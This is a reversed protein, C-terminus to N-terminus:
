DSAFSLGSREKLAEDCARILKDLSSSAKLGNATSRVVLCEERLAGVELSSFVVGEYEERFRRLMPYRVTAEELSQESRAMPEEWKGQRHDEARIKGGVAAAPNFVELAQFFIAEKDQSDFILGLWRLPQHDQAGPPDPKPTVCISLRDSFNSVYIYGEDDMRLVSFKSRHEVISNVAGCHVGFEFSVTL